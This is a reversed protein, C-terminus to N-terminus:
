CCRSRIMRTSTLIRNTMAKVTSLKADVATQFWRRFEVMPDPDCDAPDLPAGEYQAGLRWLDQSM